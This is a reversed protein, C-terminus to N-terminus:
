EEGGDREITVRQSRMEEAKTGQEIM